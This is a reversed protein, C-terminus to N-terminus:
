AQMWMTVRLLPVFGLRRYVPRGDDTAILVADADLDASLATWTLFAGVGKGRGSERTSVWEVETMGGATYSGATAVPEDDLYGVWAQLGADLLKPDVVASGQPLPYAEVLTSEFDVLREPRDVPVVTLGEPHPPPDGGRPRFMLPPHGILELGHSRLDSRHNFCLLVWGEAGEFFRAADAAVRDLAEDDLPGRCIAINDFVYASRCDVLVADDLHHLRGGTVSATHTLRETLTALYDRIVSDGAPTDPEWGTALQEGDDPRFDSLADDM